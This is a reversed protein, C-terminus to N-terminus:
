KAGPLLPTAILLVMGLFMLPFGIGPMNGSPTVMAFGIGIVILSLCMIIYSFGLWQTLFFTLRYEGNVVVALGSMVLGFLVIVLGFSILDKLKM